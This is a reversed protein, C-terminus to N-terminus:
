RRGGGLERLVEQDSFPISTAGITQVTEHGKGAVVVLAHEGACGLARAIAQRRDLVVEPEVGASRVGATVAAAIAAPDESRPNDSTVIAVDAIEGVAHGMPGRKSRDKDGGAGFVVIIRRDTLARLSALVSHLGDPTHAYDVFAPLGCALDVRELRGPLPRGAELGAVIAEPTAGAAFGAAAAALANCLNHRGLLLLRVPLEAGPLVLEFRSGDLSCEVARAHVDGSSLGWTVDGARPDELLRAAWADGTPLVRRGGPALLEGFLRAKTAFYSEMTHHYDLHDQTLNTWVAVAFRLGALREQDIAHSSAELVATRGGRELHRRLMLALESAEPTTRDAAVIENGALHYGLTGIFAGDLILSTLHATTSKGNTGTVGILQLDDQPDGALAWAALATHRRPTPSSIWPLSRAPPRDSLVAAAGRQLAQEIFDLGHRRAGPLAAFVWGPEIRRSDHSIGTVQQDPDGACAAGDLRGLLDGIRM